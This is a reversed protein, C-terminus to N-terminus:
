IGAAMARPLHIRRPHIRNRRVCASFRYVPKSETIKAKISATGRLAPSEKYDERRYPGGGSESAPKKHGMDSM